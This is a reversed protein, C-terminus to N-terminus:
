FGEEMKQPLQADFREVPLFSGEGARVIQTDYYIQQGILAESFAETKGSSFYRMYLKDMGVSAAYNIWNFRIDSGVIRNIDELNFPAESIANAIYFNKRDQYQTLTFLMPSYNVQTSLIKEYPVKYRSMQSAVLASKVVPMNLFISAGKLKRNRKLIYALNAKPNKIVKSYVIDEIRKQHIYDSLKRSLLSGDGFIVIKENALQLLQDIQAQYDIGGYIFNPNDHEIDASNVTPVYVLANTQLTTLLNAGKPTLPAVIIKYGKQRIKGLALRLDDESQRGSDFVEFVFHGRRYILYSLISNAVSNAYSGIVKRPVLLAIRPKSLAAESLDVAPIQEEEESGALYEEESGALYEEASIVEEEVESDSMPREQKSIVVTEPATEDLTDMLVMETPDVRYLQEAQLSATGALLFLLVLSKKM